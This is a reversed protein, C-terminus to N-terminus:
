AENSKKSLIQNELKINRQEIKEEM